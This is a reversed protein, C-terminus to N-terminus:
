HVRDFTWTAHQIEVENLTQQKFLERFIDSNLEIKRFIDSNM